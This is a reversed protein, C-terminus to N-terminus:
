ATPHTSHPVSGRIFSTSLSPLDCSFSHHYGDQVDACLGTVTAGIGVVAVEARAGAGNGREIALGFGILYLYRFDEVGSGYRKWGVEDRGM